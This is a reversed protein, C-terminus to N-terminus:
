NFSAMPKESYFVHVPSQEACTWLSKTLAEKKDQLAKQCSSLWQDEMLIEDQGRTTYITLCQKKNKFEHIRLFRMAVGDAREMRCIWFNLAPIERGFCFSSFLFGIVAMLFIIGKM